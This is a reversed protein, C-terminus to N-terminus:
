NIYNKIGSLYKIIRNEFSSPIDINLGMSYIAIRTNSYGEAVGTGIGTNNNAFVYVNAPQAGNEFYVFATESINTNRAVWVGTNYRSTLMLGTSIGFNGYNSIGSARSKQFLTNSGSAYIASSGTISQVGAGIYYQNVSTGTRTIYVAMHQNGPAEQNLNHSTDIYKSSGDGLLGSVRNYDGSVFNYNIGTKGGNKLPLFIGSHTRPGALLCADAIKDWVNDTKLGSILENIEARIGSELKQGEYSELRLIYDLSSGDFGSLISDEGTNTFYNISVIEPHTGSILGDGTTFTGSQVANIWKVGSVYIIGTIEPIIGTFIFDGTVFQINNGGYEIALITPIFYLPDGFLLPSKGTTILGSVVGIGTNQDYLGSFGSGNLFNFNIDIENLFAQTFQNYGSFGSYAGSEELYYKSGIFGTQIGTGSLNGDFGSFGSSAVFFGSFLGGVPFNSDENFGTLNIYEFNNIYGIYGTFIGTGNNKRELTIPDIQGFFGSSQTFFGSYEYGYTNDPININDFGDFSGTFNLYNNAGILGTMLIVRTNPFPGNVGLDIEGSNGNFTIEIQNGNLDLIPQDFQDKLITFFGSYDFGLRPDFGKLGNFGSFANGTPFYEETIPENIAPNSFDNIIFVGSLDETNPSQYYGSFYDGSKLGLLFGTVPQTNIVKKPLFEYQSYNYFYGSSCDIYNNDFGSFIGNEFLYGSIYGIIFEPVTKIKPFKYINNNLYYGSSYLPSFENFPIFEENINKVGSIYGTIKEQYAKRKPPFFEQGSINGNSDVVYFGSAGSESQESFREFKYQNFDTNERKGSIFGIIGRNYYSGFVPPYINQLGLNFGISIPEPRFELIDAREPSRLEGTQNNVLKYTWKGYDIYAGSYITASFKLIDDYDTYTKYLIPKTYDYYNISTIHADCSLNDKLTNSFAYSININEAPRIKIGIAEAMNEAIDKSQDTYDGQLILIGACIHEVGNIDYGSIAENSVGAGIVMRRPFLNETYIQNTIPDRVRIATYAQPFIGTLLRYDKGFFSRLSYLNEKIVASLCVFKDDNNDIEYFSAPPFKSIDIVGTGYPARGTTQSYLGFKAEDTSSFDMQYGKKDNGYIDDYIYTTGTTRLDSTSFEPAFVGFNDLSDDFWFYPCIQGARYLTQEFKPRNHKLFYFV